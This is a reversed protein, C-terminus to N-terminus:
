TSGPDFKRKSLSRDPARTSDTNQCLYTPDKASSWARPQSISRRFFRRICCAPFGSFFYEPNRAARVPATRWITLPRRNPKATVWAGSFLSRACAWISITAAGPHVQFLGFGFSIRSSTSSRTARKPGSWFCSQPLPRQIHTATPCVNCLKYSANKATGSGVNEGVNRRQASEAGLRQGAGRTVAVEAKCASRGACARAPVHTPAGITRRARLLDSPSGRRM